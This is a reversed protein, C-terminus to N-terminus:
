YVNRVVRKCDDVSWAVAAMLKVMVAVSPFARAPVSVVGEPREVGVGKKMGTMVRATPFYTM